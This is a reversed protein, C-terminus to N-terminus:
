IDILFEWDEIKINYKKLIVDEMLAKNVVTKIDEDSLLYLRYVQCRSLLASNVEFSPNETTAGIL